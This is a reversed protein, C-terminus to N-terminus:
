KMAEALYSLPGKSDPPLDNPNANRKHKRIAVMFKDLVQAGADNDGNGLSSVVDAPIVFEGSALMAPVSDSTGDGGGKVYRNTISAGGESYFEPKHDILGGEAAYVPMQNISSMWPAMSYDMPDYDFYADDTDSLAQEEEPTLWGRTNLAEQAKQKQEQKKNPYYVDTEQNIYQGSPGLNGLKTQPAWEMGETINFLGETPEVTQTSFPQDVVGTTEEDGAGAFRRLIDLGLGPISAEGQGGPTTGPGASGPRTSGPRTGGGSPQLSGLISKRLQGSVYDKFYKKAADAFKPSIFSGGDPSWIMEGDQYYEGDPSIVTGDSFYRWGYGEQGPQAPNPIETVESAPPEDFVDPAEETYTPEEYFPDQEQQETVLDILDPGEEPTSPYTPEEYFPDQEQQETVLDMLDSGEEPTSPYTPEEYFPDQEQQETVLDTLDPGVDLPPSWIMEGNQYYEGGPSIVTGDSFYRWGYGEQGPQAPNPIETVESAEPEEITPAEVEPIPTSPTAAGPIAPGVDLPPSSWIMEGNKFYEGQPSIATGDSFYRWGFGEQGEQAPNPIEQVNSAAEKEVVTALTNGEEDVPTKEILESKADEFIKETAGQDAVRGFEDILRGAKDVTYKVGTNVAYNIIANEIAAQVNGGSLTAATAAATTAGALGGVQKAAGSLMDGSQAALQATQQSLPATGYEFATGASPAVMSGVNQAAFSIAANKLADEINQGMVISTAGQFLASGAAAAASGTLGTLATGLAPMIPAAMLGMLGGVAKVFSDSKKPPNVQSNYQNILRSEQSTIADTFKQQLQDPPIYKHLGPLSQILKVTEDVARQASPGHTNFGGSWTSPMRAEARGEKWYLKGKEDRAWRGNVFDGGVIDLATTKTIVNYLNNYYQEPNTNREKWLDEVSKGLIYENRSKKDTYNPVQYNLPMNSTLFGYEIGAPTNLFNNFVNRGLGIHNGLLSPLENPITIAPRMMESWNGGSDKVARSLDFSSSFGAQKSLADRTQQPLFVLSDYEKQLASLKDSYGLEKFLNETEARPVNNVDKINIRTYFPEYYKFPNDELKKFLASSVASNAENLVANYQSKIADLQPKHEALLREKEKSLLNSYTNYNNKRQLEEAEKAVREAEQKALNEDLM